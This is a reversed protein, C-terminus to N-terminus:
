AVVPVRDELLRTRSLKGVATRPLAQVFEYTKPCKYPALRERCWADLEGADPEALGAHLQIVAHVRRGWRDDPLGIVAVDAVAPHESVASEVEAPYVNAGGTIILDSRRDAIYLFGDEDLRGYDGLSVFGDPTVQKYDAGVYRFVPKDAGTPRMFVEGIEGPPLENGDEDLIRVESQIPRGCSGPRELWEDGRLATKGISETAGYGHFLHEAGILEIWKRTVWEPCPAGGYGVAVLSSLDRDEIGDVEALRQLVAPVVIFQNIRHREIAEVIRPADFKEFLVIPDGLILGGYAAGFGNTHYMPTCVLHVQGPAVNMATLLPAQIVQGDDDLGLALPGDNVTIKPTGSTGGSGIATGPEPVVDPLPDESRGTLDLLGGAHVDPPRGDSWRGVTVPARFQAATALLAERERAPLRASIPLVCAGLKWAAFWITIALPEDPLGVAVLSEAGVGRHALERAIRNSHSELSGFSIERADGEHPYFIIATADPQAGALDTLRRGLSVQLPM